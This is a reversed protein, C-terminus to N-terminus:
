SEHRHGYVEDYVEERTKRLRKLIEERSLKAFPYNESINRMFKEMRAQWDSLNPQIVVVVVQSSPPLGSITVTGEDSVIEDFHYTRM